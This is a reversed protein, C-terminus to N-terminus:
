YWFSGNLENIYILQLVIGQDKPMYAFLDHMYSIMQYLANIISELWILLVLGLSITADITTLTGVLM